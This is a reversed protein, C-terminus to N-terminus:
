ALVDVAGDLPHAGGVWHRDDRGSLDVAGEAFVGIAAAAHWEKQVGHASVILELYGIEAHWGCGALWRDM